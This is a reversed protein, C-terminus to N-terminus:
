PHAQLDKMMQDFQDKTIEGRAYRQKLIQIADGHYYYNGYQRWYGRGYGGRWGWFFWRGVFFFLFIVAFFGFPFFWLCPAFEVRIFDYAHNNRIETHSWALVCKKGTLKLAGIPDDIWWQIVRRIWYAQTQSASLPRGLASSTCLSHSQSQSYQACRERGRECWHRVPLTHKAVALPSVPECFHIHM